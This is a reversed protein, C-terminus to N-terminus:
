QWMLFCTFVCRHPSSLVPPFILRCSPASQFIRRCQVYGCIQTKCMPLCTCVCRHPLSALPPFISKCSNTPANCKSDFQHFHEHAICFSGYYIGWVPLLLICYFPWKFSYIFLVGGFIPFNTIRLRAFFYQIIMHCTSLFSIDFVDNISVPLGVLNKVFTILAM